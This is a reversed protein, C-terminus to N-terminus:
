WGWWNQLACDSQQTWDGRHHLSGHQHQVLEVEGAGRCSDAGAPGRYSAGEDGPGSRRRRGWFSEPIEAWLRGVRWEPGRSSAAELKGEALHLQCERLFCGQTCSLARTPCPALLAIPLSNLFLDLLFPTQFFSSLPFICTFPLPPSPLFPFCYSVLTFHVSFSLVLVFMAWVFSPCLWM